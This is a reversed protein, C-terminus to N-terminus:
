KGTPPVACLLPSQQRPLQQLTDILASSGLQPAYLCSMPLRQSRHRSGRPDCLRTHEQAVSSSQTRKKIHQALMNGSHRGTPTANQGRHKVHVAKRSIGKVYSTTPNCLCGPVLKANRSYRITEINTSTSSWTPPHSAAKWCSATPTCQGALEVGTLRSRVM